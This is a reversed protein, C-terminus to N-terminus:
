VPPGHLGSTETDVFLRTSHDWHSPHGSTESCDHLALFPKRSNKRLDFRVFYNSQGRGLGSEPRPTFKTWFHPFVGNITSFDTIAQGM